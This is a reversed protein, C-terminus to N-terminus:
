LIRVSKHKNKGKKFLNLNTQYGVTLEHSGNGISLASTYMEYSYSLNIGHFMGGIVATVSNTPSYSVGAYMMKKDNTYVVRATVDARYAKGDTRVLVSTPITVFPSRLKINYGGTLYFTPDIQLENTEGLEVLPSTLHQASIGAYWRGHTYYLGAALDMSNGNVDSTAFAPDGAEGLDVKSGDFKENVFGFQAGVSITGGLLKHKYAYQLAIRQHTFLGIQDNLLSVGAGHYAGILYFPMDAGVYMTRPNNEFGAMSIAYAGVVNLKPQKGVAAPNFYPELDWYHSFSADYQARAGAAFLVTLSLIIYLRKFVINYRLIELNITYLRM